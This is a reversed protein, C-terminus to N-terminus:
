DAQQQQKAWYAKVAAPCSRLATAPEWSDHEATYGEWHVLYEQNRKSGRHARIYEVDFEQDGDVYVVPPNAVEGPRAIFPKLLSVHFVDHIKMTSPLELEAAQTGVMRILKFPGLWKPQLKATGESRIRINKSSLLVRQGPQFQHERAKGSMVKAQRERAHQMAQKALSIAKTMRDVFANAAPVREQMKPDRLHEMMNAPLWPHRGYNLMFPTNQVSSNEANNVAFEAPALYADWDDHHRNVFHRLMDELVRNMRETQGDTQPHYATSMNLSVGLIRHLEQWFASTFKVDRDSVISQPMGHLCFVRDRFLAATDEATATDFTPLFHVMKTLRDVVVLIATFGSRTKPLHVIFDMSIHQWQHDPVSLQQPVGFPRQTAGKNRQCEGCSRVHQLVDSRLTPWWYYREISKTTRNVGPHGAFPTNHYEHLLKQRMDAHDPIVIASNRWYFGQIQVLQSLHQADSFWPDAQYGKLIDDKFSAASQSAPVLTSFACDSETTFLGEEAEMVDSPPSSAAPTKPQASKHSRTLANVPVVPYQDSPRRSIPDAVNIRGPRYEWTFSFRQLYESWRAIRRSLNPQKPLHVLPNHDTVISFREAPQGEM